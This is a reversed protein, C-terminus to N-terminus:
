FHYHKMLDNYKQRESNIVHLYIAQITGINKHGVRDAIVELPFGKSALISIYTHRFIHSTIQKDINHRKCIRQLCKSITTKTIPNHTLKNTFLYGNKFPATPHYNNITLKTFLLTPFCILPSPFNFLLKMWDTNRSHKYYLNVAQYPLSITRMGSETKTWPQKIWGKGVHEILTGNITVFYNGYIDHSINDEKIAGGEGIRMGNLYLWLFFDHFDERGENTCDDLITRTEEDTLYWHKVRYNWYSKENKREIHVDPMPNQKIYGYNKAYTFTLRFNFKYNSVTSNKYNEKYLLDNLFRNIEVASISSIRRSGFKKLIKTFRLELSRVSNYSRGRKKYQKLTLKAVEEFTAEKFGVKGLIDKIKKKVKTEALNRAHATNKTITTSSKHVGVFSPDTYRISYKFKGNKLPEVQPTYYKVM